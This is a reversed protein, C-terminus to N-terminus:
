LDLWERRKMKLLETKSIGYECYPCTDFLDDLYTDECDECTKWKSINM